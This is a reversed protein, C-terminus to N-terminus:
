KLFNKVFLNSLGRDQEISASARCLWIFIYSKHTFEFFLFVCAHLEDWFYWLQKNYSKKHNCVRTSLGPSLCVFNEFETKLCLKSVCNEFVYEFM